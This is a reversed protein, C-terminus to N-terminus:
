LPSLVASQLHMYNFSELSVGTKNVNGAIKKRSEKVGSQMTNCSSMANTQRAPRSTPQTVLPVIRRKTPERSGCGMSSTLASASATPSAKLLQQLPREEVSCCRHPWSFTTQLHYRRYHHVKDYHQYTKPSKQTTWAIVSATPSAKLM